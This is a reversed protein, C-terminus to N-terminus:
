IVIQEEEADQVEEILELEAVALKNQRDLEELRLLLKVKEAEAAVIAVSTHKQRPMVPKVPQVVCNIHQPLPSQPPIPKRKKACPIEPMTHVGVKPKKRPPEIIQAAPDEGTDQGKPLGRKHPISQASNDPESEAGMDSETALVNAHDSPKAVLKVKPAVKQTNGKPKGGAQQCKEPAPTKCSDLISPPGPVTGLQGTKVHTSQCQVSM